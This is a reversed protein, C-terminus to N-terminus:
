RKKGKVGVMKSKGISQGSPTVCGERQTCQTDQGAYGFLDELEEGPLTEISDYETGAKL